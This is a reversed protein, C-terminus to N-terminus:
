IRLQGSLEDASPGPNLELNPFSPCCKEVCVLFAYKINVFKLPALMVRLHDFKAYIM